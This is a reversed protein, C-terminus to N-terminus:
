YREDLLHDGLPVPPTGEQADVVEADMLMQDYHQVMRDRYSSKGTLAHAMNKALAAALVLVFMSDFEATNTVRRLYRIKLPAAQDTLIYGGEIEHQIPAGNVYGDKTLPLVRLADVPITYSYLWGFAPAESDAAISARAKAFNWEYQRILGDRVLSFNRKLWRASARDDNPSTVPSEEILDLAANYISVESVGSPM